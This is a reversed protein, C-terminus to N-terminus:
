LIASCLVLENKILADRVKYVKKPSKSMNLNDNVILTSLKNPPIYISSPEYRIFKTVFCSGWPPSM